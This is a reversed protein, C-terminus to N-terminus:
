NTKQKLLYETIEGMNMSRFGYKDKLVKFHNIITNLEALCENPQFGFNHPHWWIHYYAGKKAANTMENLIRRM